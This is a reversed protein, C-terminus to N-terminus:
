KGNKELNKHVIWNIILMLSIFAFICLPLSIKSIVSIFIYCIEKFNFMLDYSLMAIGLAILMSFGKEILFDKFTYKIGALKTNSVVKKRLFGFFIIETAFIGIIFSAILQIM